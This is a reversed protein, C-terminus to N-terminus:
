RSLLYDLLQRRERKSTKIVKFHRKISDDISSSSGDHLFRFSFALSNLSPTDIGVLRKGLRNGSHSRITGINHLKRKSSDSGFIGSHCSNCRKQRFVRLGARYMPNKPIKIEKNLSKVYLALNDLDESLGKLKSAPTLSPSFNSPSIFGLGGQRRRIEFEVDQIEDFNGSWHLMGQDLGRYGKLTQTLRFGEGSDFLDWVAGDSGGEFHCSACSIYGDKSMRLDASNSFIIKGRHVKPDLSERFISPVVKLLEPRVSTADFFSVERSNESFVVLINNDILKLDRPAFGINDVTGMRELTETSLVTLSNSTYSIVFLLAGDSSFEVAVPLGTDNIDHTAVLSGTKANLLTVQSRVTRDHLLPQGDRMGGRFLNDKKHVVALLDGKPSISPVSLYNPVGRSFNEDDNGHYISPISFISSLVGHTFKYIQGISKRPIMSDTIFRSAYITDTDMELTLGQAYGDLENSYNKEGTNINYSVLENNALFTVHASDDLGVVFGTAESFSKFPISRILSFEPTFVKLTSSTLVLVEGKNGLAVGKVTDGISIEDELTKTSVKIIGISKNDENAILIRDKNKDFAIRGSRRQYYNINTSRRPIATSCSANSGSNKRASVRIISGKPNAFSHRSSNTNLVTDDLSYTYEDFDEPSISVELLEGVWVAQVSCMVSKTVSSELIIDDKLKGGGFDKINGSVFISHAGSVWPKAPVFSVINGNVSLFGDVVNNSRIVSITKESVSDADILNSFVIALAAKTGELPWIQESPVFSEVQLKKRKFNKVFTAGSKHDDGIMVLGGIPTAFDEDREPIKSSAHAVIKRKTLDVVVIQKSVGVYALNSMTHLYGGRNKYNISFDLILNPEPYLNFSYVYLNNDIGAGLLKDGNVNTSYFKPSMAKFELKPDLPNIIDLIAIGKGVNASTILKTGLAFFSGIPFGGIEEIKKQVISKPPHEPDPLEIIFLGNAGASVFVNPAQYFVWWAGDYGQDKTGKLQITQVYRPILKSFDWVQVGDVAQLIAYDGHFGYAHSERINRLAIKVDNSGQNTSNILVRRRLSRRFGAKTSKLNPLIMISGNGSRGDMASVLILNRRHIKATTIAFPLGEKSGIRGIQSLRISNTFSPTAYASISLFLIMLYFYLKGM